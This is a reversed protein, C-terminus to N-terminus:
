KRRHTWFSCPDSTKWCNWASLVPGADLILPTRTKTDVLHERIADASLKAIRVREPTDYIDAIMDFKDANGMAM